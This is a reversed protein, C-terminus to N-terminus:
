EADDEEWGDWAEMDNIVKRLFDALDMAQPFTIDEQAKVQNGELISVRVRKKPFTNTIMLKDTLLM